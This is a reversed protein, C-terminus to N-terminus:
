NLAMFATGPGLDEGFSSMFAKFPSMVLNYPLFVLFIFILINIKNKGENPEFKNELQRLNFHWAIFTQYPKFFFFFFIRM